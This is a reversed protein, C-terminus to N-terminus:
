RLTVSWAWLLGRTGWSRPWYRLEDDDRHAFWWTATRGALVRVLHDDVDEGALLRVCGAVVAPRGRRACEALIRQRPTPEHTGSM